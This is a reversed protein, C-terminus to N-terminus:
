VATTNFTFRLYGKDDTFYHEPPVSSPTIDRMGINSTPEDVNLTYCSHTRDLDIMLQSISPDPKTNIVALKTVTENHQQKALQSDSEEQTPSSKLVRQHCENPFQELKLKPQCGEKYLSDVETSMSLSDFAYSGFNSFQPHVHPDQM